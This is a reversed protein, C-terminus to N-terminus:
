FMKLLKRHNQVKQSYLARLGEKYTPYILKSILQTKMLTNDLHKNEAFFSRLQPSADSSDVSISPLNKISQLECAFDLTEGLPCSCDDCINYIPSNTRKSMSSVIARSLDTIHIRSFIQGSKYILKADKKLVRNLASRDKGYISSIRFIVTKPSFERWFNEAKIRNKGRSLKTKLSSKECVLGGNYDGYPSSSSLYGLWKLNSCHKIINKFTIYDKLPDTIPPPATILIHSVKSLAVECIQPGNLEDTTWVKFNTQRILSAKQAISKTACAITYNNKQALDLIYNACYGVGFCFLNKSM